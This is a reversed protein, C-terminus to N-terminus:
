RRPFAIGAPGKFSKKVFNPASLTDWTRLKMGFKVTTAKCFTPKCAGFDGFNTNKTYIKRLPTYGRLHNKLIFNPKPLSEWTRVRTGFKVM